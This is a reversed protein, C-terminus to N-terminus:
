RIMNRRAGFPVSSFFSCRGWPFSRLFGFFPPLWLIVVWLFAGRNGRKGVEREGKAESTGEDCRLSSLCFHAPALVFHFRWAKKRQKGNDRPKRGPRIEVNSRVGLHIHSQMWVLANRQRPRRKREPENRKILCRVPWLFLGDAFLPVSFFSAFFPLMPFLSSFARSLHSLSLHHCIHHRKM